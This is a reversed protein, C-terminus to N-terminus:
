SSSGSSSSSSSSSSRRSRSRPSKAKMNRAAHRPAFAPAGPDLTATTELTGTSSPTPVFPAAGVSLVLAKPHGVKAMEALSQGWVEAASPGISTPRPITPAVGGRCKRADKDPQANLEPKSLKRRRNALKPSMDVFTFSAMADLAPPLTLDDPRDHLSTTVATPSTEYGVFLLPKEAAVVVSSSQVAVSTMVSFTTVVFRGSNEPSQRFHVSTVAFRSFTTLRRVFASFESCSWNSSASCFVVGRRSARTSGGDLSLNGIRLM